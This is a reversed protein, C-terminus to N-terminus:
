KKGYYDVSLDGPMNLVGTGAANNAAGIQDYLGTYVASTFQDFLGNKYLEKEMGKHCLHLVSYIIGGEQRKVSYLVEMKGTAQDYYPGLAVPKTEAKDILNIREKETLPTTGKRLMRGIWNSM